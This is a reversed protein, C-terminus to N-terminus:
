RAGEEGIGALRGFLQELNVPLGRVSGPGVTAAMRFQHGDADLTSISGALGSLAYALAKYFPFDAGGGEYKGEGHWPSRVTDLVPGRVRDLVPGRVDDLLTTAGDVTPALDEAMPEVDKLTENLNSVLPRAQVLVPDLQELAADLEQAIPRAPGATAKVKELTTDLRTLGSEASDLTAPLADLTQRVDGSRRGLVDSTEALGELISELQHDPTNLAAATDELGSVISTLDTEPRRGQAASLVDAAPDLTDPASDLLDQLATRGEDDLAGELHTVTDQLAGLTDPQLERTIKDLEVPVSTRKEPIDGDFDGPDGGPILEVYYYGGLITVPRVRASPRSRLKDYDDSDVKLTAVAGGEGDRRVDTVDGITVGAMRVDTRHARIGYKDAFHVTVKDGSRLTESIPEKFMVLTGVIALVLIFVVGLVFPSAASRKLHVFKPM